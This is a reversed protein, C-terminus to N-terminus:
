LYLYYEKLLSIFDTTYQRNEDWISIIKEDVPIDTKKNTGMLMLRFPQHHVSQRVVMKNILFLQQRKLLQEIEAIRKYPLLLFFLGDKRLFNSIVRLLEELKLGAGHHALNKKDNSSQIEHEYFPPNSFICDYQKHDKYHLIDTHHIYIREKWPSEKINECAQEAASADIEVADISIENQQAVMLSLLGTGAGIELAHHKNFQGNRIRESVWAGFLCADTTVKMATRDHHVTFQKFRFYPNPM